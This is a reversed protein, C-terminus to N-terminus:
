RRNPSVVGGGLAQYATIRADLQQQRLEVLEVRSEMAERQTLLVDLYDGRASRFLLDALTISESLAQVQREKAVYSSDLNRIRSLQTSVEAYATLLTRQYEYLAQLQKANASKYAADIARRNLLPASVDAAAGYLLSAPAKALSSLEFSQLGLAGTIGLGPYFRARAAKVDLDSAALELEARRVDPRNRLLGEPSGPAVRQLTSDDFARASRAISEPYHGVLVSLRNQAEIVLQQTEALHTRNKLVEAEFRRVALENARGAQKQLQVVQLANEQIAITQRVLELRKDRAVLEYYTRAVEAVLRTVMYNRGETTAAYRLVAARTENRLRKWIDVEWSLEAAVRYDRLPEPFEREEKIELGHEVAGNRTYRGVKDVGAGAKVGVSPLYEGSKARAENKAIEIEQLLINLEQNRSLATDILQVLEPEHFFTRWPVAASGATDTALATRAAATDAYGTPLTSATEKATPVPRVHPVCGGLAAACLAGSVVLGRRITQM